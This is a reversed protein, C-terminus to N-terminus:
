FSYVLRTGLLTYTGRSACRSSSLPSSLRDHPKFLSQKRQGSVTLRPECLLLSALSPYWLWLAFLPHFFFLVFANQKVLRPQAVSLRHPSRSFHCLRKTDAIRM